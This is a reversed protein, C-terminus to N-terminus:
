PQTASFCQEPHRARFSVLCDHVATANRYCLSTDCQMQVGDIEIAPFEICVDDCAHSEYCGIGCADGILANRVATVLEAIQVKGDADCDGCMDGASRVVSASFADVVAVGGDTCRPEVLVDVTQATQAGSCEIPLLGSAGADVHVRCTVLDGTPLPVYADDRSHSFTVVRLTTCREGHLACGDPLLNAFVDKQTASTCEVAGDDGVLATVGDPLSLDAKAIISGDASFRLAIEADYGARAAVTSVALEGPALTLAGLVMLTLFAIM